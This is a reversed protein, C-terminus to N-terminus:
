WISICRLFLTVVRNVLPKVIYFVVTCGIYILTCTVVYGLIFWDSKMWYQVCLIKTWMIPSFATTQHIIYAALSSSSIYNIAESYFNLKSFGVFILFAFLFNPIAKYDSLM